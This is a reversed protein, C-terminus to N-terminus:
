NTELMLRSHSNSIVQRVADREAPNALLMALGELATEMFEAVQKEDDVNVDLKVNRYHDGCSRLLLATFVNEDDRLLIIVMADEPIGAVLGEADNRRGFAKLKRYKSIILFEEESLDSLDDVRNGKLDILWIKYQAVKQTGEGQRKIFAAGRHTLKTITTM